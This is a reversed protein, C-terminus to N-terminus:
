RIVQRLDRRRQRQEARLMATLVAALGTFAMLTTGTVWMIAGAQQQDFLPSVNLARTRAAYAPYFLTQDRDLYGGILAMPLMAILLYILQGVTGLRQRPAPEGLLPWWMLLGAVVYSFHQLDHLTQNRAAADFAAPIHTGLVIASFGTLCVAPTLHGRVSVFAHGLARRERAPLAGLALRLPQAHLLLAPVLELLFLHQVMHVSVLRADFSNLGSQLAVNLALLGIM